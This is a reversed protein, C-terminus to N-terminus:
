LHGRKCWAVTDEDAVMTDMSEDPYRIWSGSPYVGEDDYLCGSIVFWEVGGFNQRRSRQCGAPLKMLAVSETANDFLPKVEMEGEAPLWEVQQTHISVAQQDDNSFYNRLVLMECGTRSFPQHASGPPNRLYHGAQYDGFEDSLLGDLILIEEGNPHEHRVFRTNPDYRVVSTAQGLQDGTHVLPKRWVGPVPDAQWEMDQTHLVASQQLNVNLM